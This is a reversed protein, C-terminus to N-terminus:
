GKPQIVGETRASHSSLSSENAHCKWIQAPVSLFFLPPNVWHHCHSGLSQLMELWWQRTLGFDGKKRLCYCSGPLAAGGDGCTGSGQQGPTPDLGKPRKLKNNKYNYVLWNVVASLLLYYLLLVLLLYFFFGSLCCFDFGLFEGINFICLLAHPPIFLHFEMGQSTWVAGDREPKLCDNFKGLSLIGSSCLQPFPGTGRASWDSSFTGQNGRSNTTALRLM